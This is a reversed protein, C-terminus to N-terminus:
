EFPPIPHCVALDPHQDFYKQHYDEAKWFTQAPVVQTVIPRRFAKRASLEAIIEKAIAAQTDSHTFVASRYQTGVDPGQRNPTTPDHIKFFYETLKRYSVVSPNFELHVVEAHNTDGLCVRKYSPNDIRGGMFGVETKIVGPVNQFAYEVGWFCGAAFTALETTQQDTMSVTRVHLGPANGDWRSLNFDSSFLLLILGIM